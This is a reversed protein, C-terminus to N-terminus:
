PEATSKEPFYFLRVESLGVAATPGWGQEITLKVFKASVGGFSVKTNAAYGAQGPAQAFEPVGKLATWSMGDTSYEIKVTRAGFGASPEIVQNSNWVWLEHLMYIKDFDYQIWHPGPTAESQWMDKVDTSHGDDRDLGSGDITKQPSMAGHSSSSTAVVNQIPRALPETTFSLVPGKCIATNAPGLVMDVRWYYTQSFELPAEPAYTTEKQGWSVLVDRPDDRTAMSVAEFSAGLYVDSSKAMSPSVWSLTVDCPVKSARPGPTMLSEMLVKLDKEDVVGDGWPFPGIDCLPQNQRWNDALLALDAVDVKGDDNLDV